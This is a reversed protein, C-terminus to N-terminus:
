IEMALISQKVVSMSTAACHGMVLIAWMANVTLRGRHTQVIQMATALWPFGQHVNMAMKVTAEM